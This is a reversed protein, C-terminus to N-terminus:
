RGSASAGGTALSLVAPAGVLQPGALTSIRQNYIALDNPGSSVVPPLPDPSTRGVRRPVTRRPPPLGSFERASRARVREPPLISLCSPSRFPLSSTLTRRTSGRTIWRGPRSEDKEEEEGPSVRLPLPTVRSREEFLPRVRARRGLERPSGERCGRRTSLVPADSRRGGGGRAVDRRGVRESPPAESREGAVRFTFGRLVGRRSKKERPARRGERTPLRLEGARGRLTFGRPLERGEETDLPDERPELEELLDEPEPM